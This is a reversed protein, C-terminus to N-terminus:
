MKVYKSPLEIAHQVYFLFLTEDLLACQLYPCFSLLQQSFSHVHILNQCQKDLDLINGLILM